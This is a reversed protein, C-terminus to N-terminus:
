DNLDDPHVGTAHAIWTRNEPTPKRRGAEWQWVQAATAGVREGLEAQTLGARTRAQRIRKGLPPKPPMAPLM